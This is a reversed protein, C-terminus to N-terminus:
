VPSDEVSDRMLEGTQIVSRLYALLQLAFIVSGLAILAPLIWAPFRAMTEGVTGRHFYKVATGIFHYAVFLMLGLTASVSLIELLFLTPKALRERILNVRIMAGGIFTGGLGLFAILALGYGTFEELVYSSSNFLTRLAVELITHATIGIVVATAVAGGVRSLFGTGREFADIGSGQKEHASAPGTTDVM